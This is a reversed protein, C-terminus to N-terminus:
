HNNVKSFNTREGEFVKIDRDIPKLYNKRFYEDGVDEIMEFNYKELFPKIEKHNIGFLFPCKHKEAWDMIKNGDETEKEIVDSLIYTFLLHSDNSLKSILKFVEDNANEDIYQTVGELIVLTTKTFDFSSNALTTELKEKNFDIPIFTVNSPFDGLFKKLKQKKSQQINPLDVEFIEINEMGELRYARTDLGAGLILIQQTVSLLEITKEDIYKTRCIQGGIVGPAIKESYRNIFNRM